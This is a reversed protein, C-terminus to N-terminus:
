PGGNIPFLVAGIGSSSANSLLGIPMNPDFHMLVPMSMLDEKLGNFAASKASNWNWLTGKKLVKNLPTARELLQPLFKTFYVVLGLFSKLKTVNTPKAIKQIAEVKKDSPHLGQRSIIHGLYEISEQFFYKEKCLRLGHEKIRALVARLKKMHDEQMKGTIIIDDLYCQVGMLRQFIQDM